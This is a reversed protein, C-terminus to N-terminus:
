KNIKWIIINKVEAKKKMQERAVESARKKVYWDRYNVQKRVAQYTNWDTKDVKDRLEDVYPAVIAVWAVLIPTPSRKKPRVLPLPLPFPPLDAM